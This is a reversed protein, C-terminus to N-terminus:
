WLGRVLILVGRLVAPLVPRFHATSRPTGPAPSAPPGGSALMAGLAEASGIVGASYDGRALAPELTQTRIRDLSTQSIRGSLDPGVSLNDRRADVAVVLLADNEGLSQEGVLQAYEGIEMGGTTEVFLVYLQVGTDRFLGELAQEIAARDPELVGTEDTVANELRPVGQARNTTPFSVFFAAFVLLVSVRLLLHAATTLM